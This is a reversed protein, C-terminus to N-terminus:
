DDRIQGLLRIFGGGSRGNRKRGDLYASIHGDGHGHAGVWGDVSNGKRSFDGERIMRFLEGCCIGALMGGAYGWRPDLDADGEGRFIRVLFDVTNFKEMNEM